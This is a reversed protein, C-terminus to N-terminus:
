PNVTIKVIGNRDNCNSAGTIFAGRHEGHYVEQYDNGSVCQYQMKMDYWVPELTNGNRWKLRPSPMRWVRTNDRDGKPIPSTNENIYSNFYGVNTGDILFTRLVGSITDVTKFNQCIPLLKYLGDTTCCGGTSGGGEKAAAIKLLSYFNNGDIVQPRVMNLTNAVKELSIFLEANVSAIPVDWETADVGDITGVPMTLGTLTDANANLFTIIRKELEQDLSAAISMLALARKELLTTVDRCQSDPIKISKHFTQNNLYTKKQSGLEDGDLECDVDATSVDLDCINLWIVDVGECQRADTLVNSKGATRLNQKEAVCAFIPTPQKLHGHAFEDSLIGAMMVQAKNFASADFNGAVFAM